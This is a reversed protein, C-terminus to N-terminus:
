GNSLEGSDEVEIQITGDCDEITSALLDWVGDNDMEYEKIDDSTKVEEPYMDPTVECVIKYTVTLKM